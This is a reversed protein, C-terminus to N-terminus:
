AKKCCERECSSFCARLLEHLGPKRPETCLSTDAVQYDLAKFLRVAPVGRRLPLSLSLSLLCASLPYGDEQLSAEGPFVSRSRFSKIKLLGGPMGPM